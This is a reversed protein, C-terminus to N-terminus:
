SAGGGEMARERKKQVCSFSENSFQPESKWDNRMWSSVKNGIRHFQVVMNQYIEVPRRRGGPTGNAALNSSILQSTVKAAGFANDNIHDRYFVQSMINKVSITYICESNMGNSEIPFPIKKESEPISCLSHPFIRWIRVSNSNSFYAQSNLTNKLYFWFIPLTERWKILDCYENQPLKQENTKNSSEIRYEEM